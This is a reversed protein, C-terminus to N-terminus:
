GTNPDHNHFLSVLGNMTLDLDVDEIGDVADLFQPALGGTAIVRMPEGHEARIRQILGDILGVYGWFIGSQMASLTGTGIVKDPREMAIRPLKATARALAELSLNIGPAIVGGRYTGEADIVDFTTATGFDVVVLAKHFRRYAAYANVLRDAGVEAPNDLAVRMDVPVDEGVVRLECGFYRRCLWRLPQHVQPVVSALIAAGIDAAGVGVTAMLPLLIAAYEDVTRRHETALRWTAEAHEGRYLACVTNTNGADIALLM